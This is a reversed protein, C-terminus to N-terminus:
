KKNSEIIKMAEKSNMSSFNKEEVKNYNIFFDELENIMTEPLDKISRIKEFVKSVKPIAIFRDNRIMKESDKKESQEATIGGIVRCKV